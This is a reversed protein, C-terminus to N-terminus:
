KKTNLLVYFYKTYRKFYVQFKWGAKKMKSDEQKDKFSFCVSHSTTCRPLM